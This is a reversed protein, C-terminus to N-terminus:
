SRRSTSAPAERALRLVVRRDRRRQRGPRLIAKLKKNETQDALIHLARLLALGSSIMTSLQRSMVALSKLDVGKEFGKLSIEM